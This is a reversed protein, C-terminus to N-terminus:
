STPRFTAQYYPSRPERDIGSAFQTPSVGRPGKYTLLDDAFRLHRFQKRRALALESAEPPSAARAKRHDISGLIPIRTGWGVKGKTSHTKKASISFSTPAGHKEIRRSLTPVGLDRRASVQQCRERHRETDTEKKGLKSNPSLEQRRRGSDRLRM